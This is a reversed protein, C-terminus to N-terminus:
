TVKLGVADIMLFVSLDRIKGETDTYGKFLLSIPVSFVTQIISENKLSLKLINHSLKCNVDALEM